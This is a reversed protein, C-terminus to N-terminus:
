DYNHGKLNSPKNLLVHWALVLLAGLLIVSFLIGPVAGMLSAVSAEGLRSDGLSNHGVGIEGPSLLLFFM